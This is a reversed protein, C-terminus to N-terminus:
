KSVIINKMRDENNPRLTKALLEHKSLIEPDLATVEFSSLNSIFNTIRTISTTLCEETILKEQLGDWIFDRVTLADKVELGPGVISFIDLGANCARAVMEPKFLEEMAPIMSFADAITIGTFGMKTRLLDTLFYKSFTVFNESDIKPFNLHGPMIAQIGHNIAAQFPQLECAELEEITSALSPLDLHSDSSANGHGPYHKASCAIGGAHMTDIFPIMKAIVEPSVCAFARDNIVPNIPNSHIDAVPAFNLNIALSKLELAIAQSVAVTQEKWYFPYPFRTIPLPPRIILGGEHDIALILNQDPLTNRLDQVLEQYTQLWVQYSEGQIFNRKRFMFGAPRLEEIISKEEATISSGAVEVIFKKGLQDIKM